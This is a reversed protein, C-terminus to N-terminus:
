RSGVSGAGRASSMRPISGLGGPTSWATRADIGLGRNTYNELPVDGSFQVGGYGRHSAGGNACSIVSRSSRTRSVSRDTAILATNCSSPDNDYVNGTFASYDGTEFNTSWLLTGSETQRGQASTAPIAVIALVLPLAVGIRARSM